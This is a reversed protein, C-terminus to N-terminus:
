RYWARFGWKGGVFHEIAIRGGCFKKRLMTTRAGNEGGFKEAAEEANLYCKWWGHIALEDEAVFGYM